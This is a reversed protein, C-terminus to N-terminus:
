KSKWVPLGSSPQLATLRAQSNPKVIARGGVQMRAGAGTPRVQLPPSPTTATSGGSASHGPSAQATSRAPRPVLSQASARAAGPAFGGFGTADRQVSPAGAMYSSVPSIWASARLQGAQVSPLSPLSRGHAGTRLKPTVAPALMAAERGAAMAATAAPKARGPGTPQPSMFSASAVTMAAGQRGNSPRASAARHKQLPPARNHQKTNAAPSYTATVASGTEGPLRHSADARKRDPTHLAPRPAEDSRGRSGAVLQAAQLPSVEVPTSAGLLTGLELRHMRDSSRLAQAPLSASADWEAAEDAAPVTPTQLPSRPPRRTGPQSSESGQRPRTVAARPKPPKRQSPQSRAAAAARKTSKGFQMHQTRSFPSPGPPSILESLAPTLGSSSSAARDRHPQQHTSPQRIHLDQAPQQQKPRMTHLLDKLEKGQFRHTQNFSAELEDSDASSRSEGSVSSAADRVDANDLDDDVWTHGYVAQDPSPSFLVGPM